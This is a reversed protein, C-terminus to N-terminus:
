RSVAVRSRRAGDGGRRNGGDALMGMTLVMTNALTYYAYEEESLFRIIGIGSVFATAQVVLQGAGAGAGLVAWKRLFSLHKNM